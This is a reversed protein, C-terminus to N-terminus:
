RSQRRTIQSNFGCSIEFGALTDVGFLEFIQIIYKILLLLLEIKKSIKSLM